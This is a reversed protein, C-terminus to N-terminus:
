SYSSIMVSDNPVGPLVARGPFGHLKRKGPVPFAKSEHLTVTLTGGSAGQEVTIGGHPSDSLSSAALVIGSKGLQALFSDVDFDAGIPFTLVLLALFSWKM